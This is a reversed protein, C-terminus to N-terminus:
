APFHTERESFQTTPTAHRNVPPQPPEKILKVSQDNPSETWQAEDNINIGCEPCVPDKNGRLDQGCRMCTSAGLANLAAWTPRWSEHVVYFIVIATIFLVCFGATALFVAREHNAASTTWIAELLAKLIVAFLPALFYLGIFALATGPLLVRIRRRFIEERFRWMLAPGIRQEIKDRRQWVWDWDRVIRGSAKPAVSRRLRERWNTRPKPKAARLGVSHVAAAFRWPDFKIRYPAFALYFGGAIGWGCLGILWDATPWPQILLHITLLPILLVLLAIGIRQQWIDKPTIRERLAQKVRDRYEPPIQNWSSIRPTTIPHNPESSMKRSQDLPM